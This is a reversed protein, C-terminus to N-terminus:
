GETRSVLRGVLEALAKMSVPKSLYDTSGAELCRERDGPMALATLAVIPTDASQPDERIERIAALGDMVPMQIDMLILAPCRDHACEVAMLGNRAYLMAYGLDELYGGITEINAENDEALLILPRSAIGQGNSRPESMGSEATPRRFFSALQSRTVPKTLHAAAGLARSKNPEDVFSVVLVPIDRTAPDEKLRALVVWGSEGPLLIDLLIVDPRQLLVAELSEEGRMHLVSSIGLGALLDVLITGSALDDEIILARRCNGRDVAAEAVPKPVPARLANGPLAVVFRSGHGPESELTVSGGHLEVLRAVLALGLGTGEQSRSLGSDIQTFARFLKASDTSSIGIGTDWVTFCVADGGEPADVTLGVRGGEPTFKVANALLNVLVQKFRKPDAAFTQVRGDNQFAVGIRKQMAQTRVFVLCSQCFEEINVSELNLEVKGAEIKSLDLIDNILALLHQGSTSITTLSRAQRESLAGSTKELLAESLGLIANLPTRLEHSMNALFSDKLRSAQALEANAQKLESLARRLDGEARQRETVDRFVLVAGVVRGDRDRIPACSDAIPCERGDRAILVTHNALGLVTGLALTERIPSMFHERTQENIIHFVEDVDRGAADTLIWGSLKEAVPNLFTVRGEADTAIVGDGISRLTVALKEESVQLSVNAQHLDRNTQEQLVLMQKTKFLVSEDIRHQTERRYILVFALALLLTLLSAAVMIAFLSRMNSQFRADHEALAANEIEIFAGMESRISNMLQTGQGGAVSALVEATDEKRRLEVIGAMEALKAEMLPAVADLHEHAARISTLQRLEALHGGVVDRVALYPGLFSPDGTILYGRQWTEADKLESLFEVAGKSVVSTHKREQAATEIQQFAWFLVAAGLAVLLTTGALAATMKYSAKVKAMM